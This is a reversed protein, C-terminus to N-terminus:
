RNPRTRGRPRSRAEGPSDERWSRVLERGVTGVGLTGALGAVLPGVLPIAGIAGLVVAGAVAGLFGPPGEPRVILDGVWAVAVANGVVGVVALAIAGPIAVILGVVTIALAVILLPGGVSVVLGWGFTGGPSRNVDDLRDRAYGPAVAVLAGAFLLNLVAGVAFRLGIRPWLGVDGGGTTSAAAAVGPIALLALGAGLVTVSGTRKM